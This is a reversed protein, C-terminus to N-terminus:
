IASDPCEMEIEFRQLDNGLRELCSDSTWPLNGPRELPERSAGIPLGSMSCAKLIAKSVTWLVDPRANVVSTQQQSLVSTQPQSLARGQRLIECRDQRLLLCRDQRLLLCRDQRLLLCRDQRLLLSRDQRLLFRSLQQCCRSCTNESM